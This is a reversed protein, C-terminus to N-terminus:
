PVPRSRYGRTSRPSDGVPLNFRSEGWAAWTSEAPFVARTWTLFSTLPAALPPQGGRPQLSSEVM